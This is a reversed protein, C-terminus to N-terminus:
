GNHIPRSSAQWAAGLDALQAEIYEVDLRIAGGGSFVLEVIGGPAQGPEFRVALLSLVQEANGRPIGSSKVALVQEFHLVARHRENHRNFFGGIKEWAFRNMAVVFRKDRGFYELDSTKMVADQVYASVIRIDEEDLAVLKLANM